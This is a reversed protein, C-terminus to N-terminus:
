EALIARIQATYTDEGQHLAGPLLDGWANVELIAHRRFGPTFLLDVGGCLSNSFYRMAKECDSMAAEWTEQPMKERLLEGEARDNLLHLNTLPHRSLRAITHRAKRAIIVVRLDCSRGQFNAKPIWEEAHVRHRCLADILVAIEDLAALVRVRRSNYLRAVAGNNQVETTTVARHQTGNTEYAVVGAASSGHALKIFARRYGASQMRVTLDDFNQPIGFTRPIPLNANQLIAQCRPKDFMVEIDHPAHTARHPAANQLQAEVEGLAAKLGFFWQRSPWLRGKEFDLNEIASSTMWEFAGENEVQAAGRQLLLKEVEWDRGPSELRVIDGAQIREPLSTKGRLFDNWPVTIAPPLSLNALAAQFGEVRPSRPNGLILFRM